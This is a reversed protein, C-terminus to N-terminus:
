LMMKRIMAMMATCETEANDGARGRRDRVNEEYDEEYEAHGRQETTSCSLWWGALWGASGSRGRGFGM